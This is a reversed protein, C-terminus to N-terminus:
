SLGQTCSISRIKMITWFPDGGDLAAAVVLAAKGDSNIRLIQCFTKVLHIEEYSLPNDGKELATLVRM